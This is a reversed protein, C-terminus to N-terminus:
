RLPRLSRLPLPFIFRKLCKIERREANEAREATFTHFGEADPYYACAPNPLVVRLPERLRATLNHCDIPRGFRRDIRRRTSHPLQYPEAPARDVIPVPEHRLTPKPLDYAAVIYDPKLDTIIKFLM